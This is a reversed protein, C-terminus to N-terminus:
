KPRPDGACQPGLDRDRDRNGEDLVNFTRFRSVDYLVDAMFDLARIENVRAPAVLPQRLRVPVRRKTRRLLKLRLACYM